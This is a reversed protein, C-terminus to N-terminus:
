SLSLRGKAGRQTGAVLLLSRGSAALVPTPSVVQRAGFTEAGRTRVFPMRTRDVEAIFTVPGRAARTYTGDKVHGLASLRGSVGLHFLLGNLTAAVLIGASRTLRAGETLCFILPPRVTCPGRNGRAM